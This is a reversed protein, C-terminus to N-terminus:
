EPLKGHIHAGAAASKSVKGDDRAPARTELWGCFRM